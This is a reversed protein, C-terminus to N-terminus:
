IIGLAKAINTIAANKKKYYKWRKIGLGIFIDIDNTEVSSLYKEEIIKREITDLGEQLAREIQRFKLESRKESEEDQSLTPFLDIVGAVERETKNKQQVKLVRYENLLEIVEDQVCKGLQEAAM